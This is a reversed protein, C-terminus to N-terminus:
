FCDDCVDGGGTTFMAGDFNKSASCKRCIVDTDHLHQARAIARESPITPLSHDNGIGGIGLGSDIDMSQWTKAPQPAPQQLDSIIYADGAFDAAQQDTAGLAKAADWALTTMAGRGDETFNSLTDNLGTVQGLYALDASELDFDAELREKLASLEPLM